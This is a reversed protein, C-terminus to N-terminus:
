GFAILRIESGMRYCGTQQSVRKFRRTRNAEQRGDEEGKILAYYCTKLSEGDRTQQSLSM